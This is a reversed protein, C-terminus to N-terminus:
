TVGHYNTSMQLKNLKYKQIKYSKTNLLKM